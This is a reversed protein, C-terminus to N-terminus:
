AMRATSGMAVTVAMPAPNVLLATVVMRVQIAQIAGLDLIVQFDPQDQNVQKERRAASGQIVRRAKRPPPLESVAKQVVEEVLPMVDELTVSKGDEGDRPVPIRELVLAAVAEPDADKGDRGPPGPEPQRLTAIHEVLQKEVERAATAEIVDQLRQYDVEAADKGPAGDKGNEPTPIRALVLEAVAEADADKGNEGKEPAPLRALVLDAAKVAIADPDPTEGPPGPEGDKVQALREEFLAVAAEYQAAYKAKHEALMQMAACAINLLSQM